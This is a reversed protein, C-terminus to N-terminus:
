DHTSASFEAPTGRIELDCLHVAALSVAVVAVFQGSVDNSCTLTERTSASTTGAYHLCISGGASDTLAVSISSGVLIQFNGLLGAAVCM